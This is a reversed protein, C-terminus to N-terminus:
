APPHPMLAGTPSRSAASNISSIARGLPGRHRLSTVAFTKHIRRISTPSTTAKLAIWGFKRLGKLTREITASWDYRITSATPSVKTM